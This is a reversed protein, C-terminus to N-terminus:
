AAQNLRPQTMAVTVRTSAAVTAPVSRTAIVSAIQGNATHHIVLTKGCQMALLSAADIGFHLALADPRVANEQRRENLRASFAFYAKSITSWALCMAVITILTAFYALPSVHNFEADPLSALLMGWLLGSVLLLAADRSRLWVCSINHEIIMATSNM